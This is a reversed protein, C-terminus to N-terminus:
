PLLPGLGPITVQPVPVGLVNPQTTPPPPPATTTTTPAQTTPTPPPPAQTTPPAPASPTPLPLDPLPAPLPVLPNAGGQGPDTAAPPPATTSPPPTTTSPPTGARPTEGAPAAPAPTEAGAAEAPPAPAAPAPNGGAAGNAAPSPLPRRATDLLSSSTLASPAPLVVTGPTTATTSTPAESGRAEEEVAGAPAALTPADDGAGGGFITFGALGVALVAAAAAGLARDSWGRLWPRRDRGGVEAWRAAVAAALGDPVPVVLRRLAPKPADVAALLAAARAPDEAARADATLHDRYAARARDVLAVAADREIGLVPAAQEPSGGEVEVLWVAVRSTAPLRRFAAVAPEDGAVPRAGARDAAVAARHVAAAVRVRLSLLPDPHRWAAQFADCIGDVVAQEAAEVTASGALAIRWAPHLHRDVLAVLAEGDDEAARTVLQEDSDTIVAM